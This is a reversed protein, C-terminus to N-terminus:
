HGLQCALATGGALYFNKIIPSNGIKALVAGTKKKIAEPHM